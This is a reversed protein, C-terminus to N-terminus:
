VLGGVVWGLVVGVGFLVKRYLKSKNKEKAHTIEVEELINNTELLKSHWFAAEETKLLNISDCLDVRNELNIIIEKRIEEREM